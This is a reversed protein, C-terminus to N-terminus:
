MIRILIMYVATGLAISLMMNKKWLHVASTSAVGLLAPLWGAASAFTVDKLCYVILLAMTARPLVEGLWEVFAPVSRGDRFVAFPLFRTVMTAAGAALIVLLMQLSTM